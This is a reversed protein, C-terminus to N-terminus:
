VDGGNKNNELLRKVSHFLKPLQNIYFINKKVETMPKAPRGFLESREPYSRSLASGAYVTSHAGLSINDVFAVGGWLTCGEGIVVSGSIGCYAAIFCHAGIQCNHAIHVHNDIKTGCGIRTENLFSRDITTHAGVDVGDELVVRGVQPIRLLGSELREHKFGSAGLIVGPSLRVENGLWTNAGLYSLAELRCRKGIYCNQEIVVHSDIHTGDGVITDRGVVAYPGIFVGEGLQVGDAIIATPHIHTDERLKPEFLHRMIGSLTVWVNDVILLVVDSKHEMIEYIEPTVLVAGAKSSPFLPLYRASAIFSLENQQALTLTNMGRLEVEQSGKVELIEIGPIDVLQSVLLGRSFHTGQM